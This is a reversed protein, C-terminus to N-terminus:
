FCIAFSYDVSSSSISTIRTMSITKMANIMKRITPMRNSKRYANRARQEKHLVAVKRRGDHHLHRQRLRLIKRKQRHGSNM